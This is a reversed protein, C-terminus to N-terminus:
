HGSQLLQEAATGGATETRLQSGLDGVSPHALLVLDFVGRCVFLTTGGGRDVVVRLRPFGRTIIVNCPIFRDDLRQQHISSARIPRSWSRTHIHKLTQTSLSASTETKHNPQTTAVVVRFPTHALTSDPRTSYTLSYSLM